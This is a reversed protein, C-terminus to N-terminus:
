NQYDVHDLLISHYEAKFVYFLKQVVRIFDLFYEFSLDLLRSYLSRANM